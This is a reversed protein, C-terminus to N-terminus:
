NFHFGKDKETRYILIDGEWTGWFVAFLIYIGYMYCVSIHLHININWKVIIPKQDFTHTTSTSISLLDTHMCSESKARKRAIHRYSIIHYSIIQDSRILAVWCNIIKTPCGFYEQSEPVDISANIMMSYRYSSFLVRTAGTTWHNVVLM